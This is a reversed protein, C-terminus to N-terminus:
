SEERKITALFRLIAAGGRSKTGLHAGLPEAGEYTVVNEHKPLGWDSVKRTVVVLCKGLKARPVLVEHAFQETRGM